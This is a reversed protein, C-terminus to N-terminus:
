GGGLDVTGQVTFVGNFNFNQKLEHPWCSDQLPMWAASSRAGCANGGMCGAGGTGCIEIPEM